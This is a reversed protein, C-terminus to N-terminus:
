GVFYGVFCYGFKNRQFFMNTIWWYLHDLFDISFSIFNLPRVLGHVKVKSRDNVHATLQKSQTCNYTECKDQKVQEMVTKRISHKSKHYTKKICLAVCPKIDAKIVNKDIYKKLIPNSEM